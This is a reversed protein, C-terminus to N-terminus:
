ALLLARRSRIFQSLLWKEGTAPPRGAHWSRLDPAGSPLANVFYLGEGRRGKHRVGLRPFDTEGAEYDDNLYVLFTMVREGRTRVEDEYGPMSPDVFDYHNAIQEGVAYHLVTAGEMNVLPLGSARAIRTQVMLHVLDTEMLNFGASSNTRLESVVDSKSGAADYVRARVLRHRSREILWSCVVDNLFAPFLRIAPGDHLAIGPPVAGWPERDLNGADVSALVELQDAAPRWGRAAALRALELAARWDHRGGLGAAALVALLAAAEAGGQMAAERMFGAGQSCLLPARDGVILRKALRTKAEVDGLQTARALCDIAEDHRGAADHREAMEIEAVASTV